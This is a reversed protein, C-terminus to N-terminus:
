RYEIARPAGTDFDSFRISQEGSVDVDFASANTPLIPYYVLRFQFINFALNDNRVRIGLGYGQFPKQSLLGQNQGAIFGIDAFAFTIARFDLYNFPTIAVTELSLTLRQKGQLELGSLGRIGMGNSISINESGLRQFGNTYNLSFLQRFSYRKWQVMDTIIRTELKFSGQEAVGARFYSGLEWRLYVYGLKNIKKAKAASMGLYTRNYFEGWEYGQIIDFLYGLPIDETRGFGYIFKDRYYDRISVSMSSLYLIRNRFQQNSDASVFPRYYHNYNTIRNGWVLRSRDRLKDDKFDFSFARAVWFDQYEYKLRYPTLEGIPGIFSREESNTSIEIGGAYKIEPTVFRRTLRIGLAERTYRHAFFLDSSIYSNFVNPVKYNGEYGVKPVFDPNFYVRNDLEHGTGFINLYDLGIRGSNFGNPQFDFALGLIDKTLVLIDVTSQNGKRPVVYIRADRIFPLQRLLRENDPLLYPDLREGSKLLLAKRIVYKRTHFHSRNVAREIWLKAVKSTDNFNPGFIDLQKIIVEGILRGAYQQYNESAIPVIVTDKKPGPVTFVLNFLEKTFKNRSFRDELNQYFYQPNNIPWRMRKSNITDIIIISTDKKIYLTTDKRLFYSNGKIKLTDFKVLRGQKQAMAAGSGILLCFFLVTSFILKM